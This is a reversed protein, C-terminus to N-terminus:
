LSRNLSGIEDYRLHAWVTKGDDVLDSGWESCLADVLVLGRHSEDDADADVIAPFVQSDDIVEIVLTGGSASDDKHLYIYARASNAFKIANTVLETIVLQADDALHDIQWDWLAARLTLRALAVSSPEPALTLSYVYPDLDYSCKLFM